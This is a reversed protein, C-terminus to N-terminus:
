PNVTESKITIAGPEGDNVRFLLYQAANLDPRLVKVFVNSGAAGTRYSELAIRAGRGDVLSWLARHARQERTTWVRAEPETYNIYYYSGPALQFADGKKTLTAKTTNSVELIELGGVTQDADGDMVIQWVAKSRNLLPVKEVTRPPPTAAGALGSAAILAALVTPSTM